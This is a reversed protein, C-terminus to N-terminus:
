YRGYLGQEDNQHVLASGAPAGFVPATSARLTSALRDREVEAAYADPTESRILEARDDQRDAVQQILVLLALAAVALLFAALGSVFLGVQLDAPESVARAANSSILDHGALGIAAGLLLGWWWLHCWFSGPGERWSSSFPPALPHSARWLDDMVQKPRFLNVIPVFWGWVVWRPSFRLDGVALAPLNAYARRMWAILVAGGVVVLGAAILEALDRGQLLAATTPGQTLADSSRALLWTDIVGVAGAIAIGFFLVLQVVVGLGRSSQYRVMTWRNDQRWTHLIHVREYREWASGLDMGCASCYEHPREILRHCRPCSPSGPEALDSVIEPEFRKVEPGFKPHFKSDVNPTGCAPCFRDAATVTSGCDRCSLDAARSRTPM